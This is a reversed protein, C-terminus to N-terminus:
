SFSCCIPYLISNCIFPFLFTIDKSIICFLIVSISALLLCINAHYVWKLHDKSNGSFYNNFKKIYNRHHKLFILVSIVLSIVYYIFLSYCWFKSFNTSWHIHYTGINLFTLIIAPILHYILSKISPSRLNILSINVHALLYLQFTAFILLIIKFSHMDSGNLRALIEHACVLCFLLYAFAVLKKVSKYNKLQKINPVTTFLFLLQLVFSTWLAGTFFFYYLQMVEM